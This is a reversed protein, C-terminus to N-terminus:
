MSGGVGFSLLQHMGSNKVFYTKKEPGIYWSLLMLYLLVCHLCHVMEASKSFLYQCYISPWLIFLEM